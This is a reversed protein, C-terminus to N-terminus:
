GKVIQLRSSAIRRGQDRGRITVIANNRSVTELEGGRKLSGLRTVIWRENSNLSAGAVPRTRRNALRDFLVRIQPRKQQRVQLLFISFLRASKTTVGRNGKGRRPNRDATLRRSVFALWADAHFFKLGDFIVVRFGRGPRCALGRGCASSNAM